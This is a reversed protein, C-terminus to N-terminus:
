SATFSFGKPKIALVSCHINRVVREATSGLLVYRLNTKGRTGLVVLDAGEERAYIRIGEGYNQNDLLTSRVDLGETRERYPDLYQDLRTQTLAMYQEKFNPEAEPTPARYHLHHWPGYFVHLFRLRAKESAAIHVAQEVALNSTESFDICAVITKFPGVQNPGVLMVRAPIKRVCKTALTGTGGGSGYSGYTGMVVMDAGVERVKDLFERIPTGIRVELAIDEPAKDGPLLTHVTEELRKITQSRLDEKSVRMSEAVSTVVLPDLVNLVHLSAENWRALRAAQILAPEAGKSFDVGVVVARLMKMTRGRKQPKSQQHCAAKGRVPQHGAGFSMSNSSDAMGRTTM